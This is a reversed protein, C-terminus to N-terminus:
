FKQSPLVTAVHIQSRLTELYPNGDCPNIVSEMRIMFTAKPMNTLLYYWWFELPINTNKTNNDFLGMGKSKSFKSAVM